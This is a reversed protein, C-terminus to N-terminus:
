IRQFKIFLRATSVMATTVITTSVIATQVVTIPIIIALVKHQKNQGTPVAIRTALRVPMMEGVAKRPLEKKKNDRGTEVRAIGDRILGVM